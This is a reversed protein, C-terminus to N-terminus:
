TNPFQTDEADGSTSSMAVLVETTRRGARGGSGEVVKVWGQHTAPRKKTFVLNIQANSADTQDGQAAIVNDEASPIATFLGPNSVSITGLGATIDLILGTGDGTTNATNATTNPFVTYNGPSVLTVATVNGTANATVIFTAQTGTGSGTITVLDGTAYGEGEANIGVTGVVVSEVNIVAATGQTGGNVTFGTTGNSTIVVGSGLNAGKAVGTLTWTEYGAEASDVGYVGITQGTVFADATSNGFLAARNAVNNNLGVTAPGWWVSNAASDDSKWQSM